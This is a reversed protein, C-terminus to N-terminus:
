FVFNSVCNHCAVVALATLLLVEPLAEYEEM